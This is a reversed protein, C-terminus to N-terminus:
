KCVGKINCKVMGNYIYQATSNDTYGSGTADMVKIFGWDKAVAARLADTQTPNLTYIDGKAFDETAVSMLGALKWAEDQPGDVVMKFGGLPRDCVKIYIAETLVAAAEDDVALTKFNQKPALLDFAAHVAEHVVTRDEGPRTGYAEDLFLMANLEEKYRAEVVNGKPLGVPGEAKLEGVKLCEIRGAEIAQAVQGIKQGTVVLSGLKFGIKEMGPTRLIRSVTKKLTENGM